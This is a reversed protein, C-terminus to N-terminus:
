NTTTSTRLQQQDNNLQEKQMKEVDVDWDDMNDDDDSNSSTDSQKDNRKLFDNDVLARQYINTNEQSQSIIYITSELKDFEM